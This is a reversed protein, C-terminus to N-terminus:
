CCSRSGYCSALGTQLYRHFLRTRELTFMDDIRCAVNQGHMGLFDVEGVELKGDRWRRTDDNADSQM